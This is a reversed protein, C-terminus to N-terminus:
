GSGAQRIAQKSAAKLVAKLRVIPMCRFLHTITREKANGFLSVFSPM